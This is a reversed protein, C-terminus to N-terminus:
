TKPPKIDSDTMWTPPKGTMRRDPSQGHIYACATELRVLREGYAQAVKDVRHELSELKGLIKANQEPVDDLRSTLHRFIWGVAAVLAAVLWPGFEAFLNM